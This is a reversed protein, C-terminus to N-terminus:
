HGGTESVEGISNMQQKINEILGALWEPSINCPINVMNRGLKESEPCSGSVYRFNGPPETSAIVPEMFWIGDTELINSLRERIVSGNKSSWAIRLPVIERSTDHYVKPLEEGCEDEIVEVLRNLTERREQSTLLWRDIEMIGVAALFPPMRAPYPYGSSFTSGYDENAFASKTIGLLNSYILQVLRMRGYRDPRCYNRELIFQHWLAKQKRIPFSGSRAHIERLKDLLSFDKTYVLGGSLTNIPKSHDTSFLAADGFNGCIVGNVSSGVTLACDELLFIGRNRALELIPAIECPIGFSHQAVILRTRTSLVKAIAEASSGFTNRDIDAYVPTAGIRLVANAMVSCTAGQLVVEDGVKISLAQMLAFFGMRGTAFAVARGDGILGSFRTEFEDIVGSDDVGVLSRIKILEERALHVHGQVFAFYPVSFFNRGAQCLVRCVKGISFM